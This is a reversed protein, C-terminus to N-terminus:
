ALPPLDDRLVDRRRVLWGGDVAVVEDEMVTSLYAQPAGERATEVLLVYGRTALAGDALETVALSTLLHRRVVGAARRADGQRRTAERIKERGQVPGPLANSRFVTDETFTGAYTDVDDGDAAHMQRAYFDLLSQRRAAATATATTHLATSM